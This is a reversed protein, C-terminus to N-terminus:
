GPLVLITQPNLNNPDFKGDIYLIDIDHLPRTATFRAYSGILISNGGIASKFAEYIRSILDREVDTPSLSIKAHERFLKNLENKRM